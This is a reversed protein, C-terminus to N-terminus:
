PSLYQGKIAFYVQREVGMTALYVIDGDMTATEMPLEFFCWTPAHQWTGDYVVNRPVTELAPVVDDPDQHSSDQENFEEIYWKEIVHVMEALTEFEQELFEEETDLGGESFTYFLWKM